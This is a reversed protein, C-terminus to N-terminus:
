SVTSTPPPVMVLQRTSPQCTSADATKRTGHRPGGAKFVVFLQRRFIEQRLLRWLGVSIADRTKRIEERMMAVSPVELRDVYAQEIGLGSLHFQRIGRVGHLVRDAGSQEGGSALARLPEHGRL